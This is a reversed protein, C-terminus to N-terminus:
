VAMCMDVLKAVTNVNRMTGMGGPLKLKSRGMGDPFHIYIERKGARVQEGGPAVVDEVLRKDVRETLFYVGVRAPEAKPFPNAKLVSRMEAATRVVVHAPKGLQETLAKELRTRIADEALGSEFVVNGSQIYTRVNQLGLRGTCLTSLDKMSLKGTGGVNVARLLAIFTAM